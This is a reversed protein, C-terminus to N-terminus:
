LEPLLSSLLPLNSAVFILRLGVEVILSVNPPLIDLVESLLPIRSWESKQSKSLAESNSVLLSIPVVESPHDLCRSSQGDSPRICPLNPYDMSTVTSACRGGTMRLLTEDHHVVM